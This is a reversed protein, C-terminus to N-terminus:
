KGESYALWCARCDGSFQDCRDEDSDTEISPCEGKLILEDILIEVARTM